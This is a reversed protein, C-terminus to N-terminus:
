KKNGICFVFRNRGKGKGLNYHSVFPYADWAKTLGGATRCRAKM